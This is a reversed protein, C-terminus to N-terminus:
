IEITVKLKGTVSDTDIFRVRAGSAEYQMRKIIAKNTKEIDFVGDPTKSLYDVTFTDVPTDGKFVIYETVVSVRVKEFTKLKM